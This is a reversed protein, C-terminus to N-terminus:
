EEPKVEAEVIDAVKEEKTKEPKQLYKLDGLFVTPKISFNDDGLNNMSMQVLTSIQKEKLFAVVEEKRKQIDDQQEQTLEM